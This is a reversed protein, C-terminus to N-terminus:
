ACAPRSLTRPPSQWARAPARRARRTRPRRPPARPPRRAHAARRSRRRAVGARQEQVGAGPQAERLAVRAGREGVQELDPPALLHHALRVGGRDVPARLGGDGVGREVLRSAARASARSSSSSARRKPAGRAIPIASRVSPTIPSSRSARRSATSTSAAEGARSSCARASASRPTASRCRRRMTSARSGSRRPARDRSASRRWAARRARGSRAASRRRAGAGGSLEASDVRERGVLPPDGRQRRLSARVPLDGLREVHAALGDLLM